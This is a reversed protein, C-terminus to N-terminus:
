LWAANWFPYDGIRAVLGARLPNAIVYRAMQRIDEGDRVAHDHFGRQWIPMGIHRASLSKMISVVRSLSHQEGIQVLWHIHDPMVVYCLTHHGRSELQHITRAAIAANLFDRFVPRRNRVVTTILYARGPESFRGKRLSKGHFQRPRNMAATNGGAIDGHM